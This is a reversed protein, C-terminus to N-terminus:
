CKRKLLSRVEHSHMRSQAYLSSQVYLLTVRCLTVHRHMYHHSYMYHRSQVYLSTVTCITVHSHRYHYSYMYHRSQVYLSTVTCIYHHFLQTSNIIILFYHQQVHFLHIQFHGEEERIYAWTYIYIYIYTPRCIGYVPGYM